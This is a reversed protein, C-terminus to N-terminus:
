FAFWVHDLLIPPSQSCGEKGERELANKSFTSQKDRVFNNQLVDRTEQKTGIHGLIDGPKQHQM